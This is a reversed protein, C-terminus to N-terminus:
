GSESRYHRKLIQQNNIIHQLWTFAPDEAVQDTKTDVGLSQALQLSNRDRYIRWSALSLIARISDSYFSQNLPGIGCGAVLTTIGFEAARQFIALIEALNPIAMLPGGGFVVMDMTSVLELAESISCVSCNELELMQQITM